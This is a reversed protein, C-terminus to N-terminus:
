RAGNQTEAEGKPQREGRDAGLYNKYLQTNRLKKNRFEAAFMFLQKLPKTNKFAEETGAKFNLQWVAYDMIRNLEEGGLQVYDGDVTLLQAGKFYDLKVYTNPRPYFVLANVGQPVWYEATTATGTRWGYYGHDLEPLSAQVLKSFAYLSGTTHTQVDTGIRWVSLPVPQATTGNTAVISVASSAADYLSIFEDNLTGTSLRGEVSFEGALLQWVNLAENIAAGLEFESHFNELGGAREALREKLTEFTVVSYAM